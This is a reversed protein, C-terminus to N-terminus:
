RSIVPLIVIFIISSINIFGVFYLRWRIDPSALGAGPFQYGSVLEEVSHNGVM